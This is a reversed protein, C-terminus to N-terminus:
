EKGKLKRIAHNRIRQEVRRERLSIKPVKKGRISAIKKIVKKVTPKIVKLLLDALPKALLASTTAVVAIGATTAAAEPTPLYKEQWPIEPEPAPIEEKTEKVATQPKAAKPINKLPLEPTKPPNYAPVTAKPTPIVQEPEFDLPTYSPVGADCHTVLGNKDDYHLEKNTNGANHSEVCGPMDIIPVGIQTTVPPAQPISVTPSTLWDPIPPIDLSRINIEPIEM